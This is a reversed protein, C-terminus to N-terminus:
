IAGVNFYPNHMKEAGVTTSEGHGCYLVTDDDLLCIKKISNKLTAFDGTPLDTRGINGCFATDGCFLADALKYGVGGATHGPLAIVDFELSGIKIREGGVLTEVKTDPDLPTTPYGGVFASLNKQSSYLCDRDGAGIYVTLDYKKALEMIGCIHDFHGHTLLVSIPKVECTNLFAAFYDDYFGPDILVATEGDSVYYCNAGLTGLAFSKIIM